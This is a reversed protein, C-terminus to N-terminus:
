KLSIYMESFQLVHGIAEKKQSIQCKHFDTNSINNSHNYKFGFTIHLKNDRKNQSQKYVIRIPSTWRERLAEPDECLTGKHGVQDEEVWNHQDMWYVHGNIKIFATNGNWLANIFSFSSEILVHSFDYPIEITKELLVEESEKKLKSAYNKALLSLFKENLSNSVDENNEEKIM